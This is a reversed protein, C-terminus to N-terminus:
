LLGFACAVRQRRTTVETLCGGDMLEMVVWIQQGVIFSDACCTLVLVVHCRGVRANAGNYDVINPHHSSKMISIETVLLKASDSSLAMQKVAVKQNNRKDVASYVTGAAGVGIEKM